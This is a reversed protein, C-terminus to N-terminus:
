DKIKEMKLYIKEEPTLVFATPSLKLPVTTKTSDIAFKYNMLLKALGLKTEVVGFRMGICIRPGEGFPLWSYQHRKAIEEPLFRDPDFKEPDPYIDPDHQIAYVPIIISQGKPIVVTSNPIKYDTINTRQLNVVVPYKRLTENVCQELYHMDAVADYSLGGHKEIAALVSKRAKEQLEENVSFEYM